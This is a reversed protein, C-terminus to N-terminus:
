TEVSAGVPRAIALFVFEIMFGILGFTFIGAFMAPM